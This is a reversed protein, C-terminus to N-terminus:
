THYIVNTHGLTIQCGDTLEVYDTDKLIRGNVATRNKNQYNSITVRGNSYVMIVCHQRSMYLDDAPIQINAPSTKGMRGVINTGISLPYRRGEFTLCRNSGHNQSSITTDGHNSDQRAYQSQSSESYHKPPQNQQYQQEPQQPQSKPQQTHQHQQTYNQLRGGHVLKNYAAQDSDLATQCKNINAWNKICFFIAAIPALLMTLVLRFLFAFLMQLCGDEANTRIMFTDMAKEEASKKFVGKAISPIGGIGAIIWATMAQNKDNIYIIIGLVLFFILFALKIKSWSIEKKYIEINEYLLKSTCDRCIPKNDYTHTSEDVCSRCMARGCVGCSAVAPADNHFACPNFNYTNFAM